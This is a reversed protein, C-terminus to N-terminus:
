AHSQAKRRAGVQRYAADQQRSFAVVTTQAPCPRRLPYSREVTLAARREVTDPDDAHGGCWTDHALVAGRWKYNGYSLTLTTVLFFEM